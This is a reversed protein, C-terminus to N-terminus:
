EGLEIRWMGRYGNEVWSGELITSETLRHLTARGDVEPSTLMFHGSSDKDGRYQVLGDDSYEVLIGQDDIKVTCPVNEAAPEDSYYLVDM